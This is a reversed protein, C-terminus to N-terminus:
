LDSAGRQGARDDDGAEAGRDARFGIGLHGLYLHRM